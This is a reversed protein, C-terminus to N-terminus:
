NWFAAPRLRGIPPLINKTPSGELPGVENGDDFVHGVAFVEADEDVVVFGAAGEVTTTEEADGGCTPNLKLKLRNNITNPSIQMAQSDMLSFNFNLAHEDM